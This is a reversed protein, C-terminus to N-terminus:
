KFFNIVENFSYVNANTHKIIVIGSGGAGGAGVPGAGL